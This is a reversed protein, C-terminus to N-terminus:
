ITFNAELEHSIADSSTFPKSEQLLINLMGTKKWYIVLILICEDNNKRFNRIFFIMTRRIPWHMKYAPFHPIDKTRDIGDQTNGGKYLFSYSFCHIYPL